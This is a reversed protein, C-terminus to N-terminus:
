WGSGVPDSSGPAALNRFHPLGVPKPLPHTEFGGRCRVGADWTRIRAGARRHCRLPHRKENAGAVGPYTRIGERDVARHQKPLGGTQWGMRSRSLAQAPRGSREAVWTTYRKILFYWERRPIIIM